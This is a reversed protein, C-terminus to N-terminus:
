VEFELFKGFKVLRAMSDRAIASHVASAGSPFEHMDADVVLRSWGVDLQQLVLLTFGCRDEQLPRGLVELFQTDADVLDHDVVTSSVSRFDEPLGALPVIKVM